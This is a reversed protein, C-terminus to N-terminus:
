NLKDVYVCLKRMSDYMGHSVQKLFIVVLTLMLVVPVVAFDYEIRIHTVDIQGM